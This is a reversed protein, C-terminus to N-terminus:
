GPTVASSPRVSSTGRPRMPSTPALPAPLVVINRRSSPRAWGVSPVTSTHPCSTAAVRDADAGAEAVHGLVVAEREVLRRGVDHGREALEAPERGRAARWRADSM